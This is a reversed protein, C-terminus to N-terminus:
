FLEVRKKGTVIYLPDHKGATHAATHIDIFQASEFYSRVLVLREIDTTNLWVAVAKTPFCRNSFSVVFTGGPKLVRNVDTFVKVPEILYQISVACLVADFHESAYPLMPAVNLNHVIHEDLQPNDGLEETNMGLGYVRKPKLTEPLHSRWSSMMDLIVDGEKLISAYHERLLAIADEDLHVVKRALSYFEFDNNEDSRRYHEKPFDQAM